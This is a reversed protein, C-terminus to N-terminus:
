SESEATASLEVLGADMLKAVFEAVDKSCRDLDVDYEQAMRGSLEELSLPTQLYRWIDSGVEDTAFYKGSDPDFLILDKEVTAGTVDKRVYKKMNGM